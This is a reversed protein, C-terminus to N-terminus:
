RPKTKPSWVHLANDYFSCTAVHDNQSWAAGYALSQQHPYHECEVINFQNCQEEIRYILFGNYMCATLLLASDRPHPKIRWVGGGTDCQATCVPRTNNRWDWVRIHQDYSGTLIMHPHSEVDTIWCVGAQHTKRDLFVRSPEQSASRVDWAQFLADDGGSYIISGLTENSRSWTSVWAELTHAQWCRISEIRDPAVHFVKVSGDSYSSTCKLADEHRIMDLTLAMSDDLQSTSLMPTADTLADMFQLSGDAFAIAVVSSSGCLSGPVWQLDFIGPLQGRTHREILSMGEDERAAAAATTTYTYLAGHRIQTAEDLQYTGVALLDECGQNRNWDAVDAHLDLKIESYLYEPKM